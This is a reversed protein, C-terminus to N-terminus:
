NFQYNTKTIFKQPKTAWQRFQIGRKSKVRYGVSIIMDLNYYKVDYIKNDEATHWFNQYVSLENLENEKFLNVIHESITRRNKDFLISLQQQTLWVTNEEFNVKLEIENGVTKFIEVQSEM